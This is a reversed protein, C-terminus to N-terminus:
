HSSAGVGTHLLLIQEIGLQQRHGAAASDWALLAMQLIVLSGHLVFQM